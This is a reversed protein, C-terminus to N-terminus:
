PAYHDFQNKVRGLQWNLGFRVGWDSALSAYGAVWGKTKAEAQVWFGLRKGRQLYAKMKSMVGPHLSQDYFHNPQLWLQLGPQLVVGVEEGWSWAQLQQEWEVGPGWVHKNRYSHLTFVSRHHPTKFFVDMSVDYGFANLTHRLAFNVQRHSGLSIHHIGLMYPSIFNLYQMNGMRRLFRLEEPTLQTTKIARAIGEGSPHVGRAEYPEHPRHLDYVWPTFDWGVYDRSSEDWGHANMSDISANYGKKRFQNVYDVMHKTMLVQLALDHHQADKFVRDKQLNRLLLMESELGASFSRVLGQPDEKKFRVLDEDRVGSVAGSPRLGALALYTENYSSIGRQTLGARHFEEHMWQASFVVAYYTFVYDVLGSTLQTAIWRSRKASQSQQPIIEKWAQGQYHYNYRHLLSTLSLAQQMSVNLPFQQLSWSKQLFPYDLLAIDVEFPPFALTDKTSGQAKSPLVIGILLFLLLLPIIAGKHVPFYIKFLSYSKLHTQANM